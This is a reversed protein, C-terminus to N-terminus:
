FAMHQAGGCYGLRVYNASSNPKILLDGVRRRLMSIENGEGRRQDTGTANFLVVMHGAPARVSITICELNFRGDGHRVVRECITGHAESCVFIPLLTRRGLCTAVEDHRQDQMTYKVGHFALSARSRILIKSTSEYCYVRSIDSILVEKYAIRRM